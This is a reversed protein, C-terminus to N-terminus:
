SRSQLTVAQFDEGDGSYYKSFIEYYLLRMGQIMVIMGELGIVVLNGILFMSINGIPTQMMEAIIHFAMFLGIHNLAFAGVRVFSLTNSLYGLYAELTEFVAEVSFMVPTEHILPKQRTMLATLPARLAILLTLFAIVWLSLGPHILPSGAALGYVYTLLMLYLALGALGNRGLLGEQLQGMRLRNYIGLGYSAVLLAAGLGVSALLLVTINEMGHFHVREALAEGGLAATIPSILHEYGFFSDYVFGFVMSSIGIRSLIGGAAKFRRGLALGGLLLVLGQGLDGFMMGFLLMYTIGVFWTPDVEYYGPTGYTTVLFEFPRVLWHNRLRTPRCHVPEVQTDDGFSFLVRDGYVAMAAELKARERLPVWGSLFFFNRTVTVRGKVSLLTEEMRLKQYSNCIVDGFCQRFRELEVKLAELEQDLEALRAEVRALAARPVDLLEPRIVYEEFDISRLIQANEAELAKPYAILYIERGEWSGVHMVAASINEYNLSLKQRHEKSIAGIRYSFHKLESLALLSIGVEDILSLVLHRRLIEQEKELAESRSLLVSFRDHMVLIDNEVDAMDYATDFHSKDIDGPIELRSMMQELKLQAERYEWKGSLSRIWDGPNVAGMSLNELTAAINKQRVEQVPQFCETLVIDRLIHDMDELHGALNMMEMREVAM